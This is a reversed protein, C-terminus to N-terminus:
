RSKAVFDSIQGGVYRFNWVKWESQKSQVRSPFKSYCSFVVLPL